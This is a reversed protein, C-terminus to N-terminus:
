GHARPDLGTGATLHPYCHEEGFTIPLFFRSSIGLLYSSSLFSREGEQLSNGAYLAIRLSTKEPGARDVREDFPIRNGYDTTHQGSTCTLFPLRAHISPKVLTSDM